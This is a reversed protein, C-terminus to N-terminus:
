RRLRDRGGPARRRVPAPLVPRVDPVGARRVACEIRAAITFPLAGEDEIVLRGSPVGLRELVERAQERIARGYFTGVKSRALAISLGGEAPEFRVRLDARAGDGSRGAEAPRPAPSEHSFEM